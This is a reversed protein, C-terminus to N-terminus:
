RDSEGDLLSSEEDFADKKDDPQCTLVFLKTKGVLEVLLDMEVRVSIENGEEAISADLCNPQSNVKVVVELDDRFCYPDVNEPMIEQVYSLTEKAVATESNGDYSYWVSVDFRGHVEVVDGVLAGEYTHNMVWCGGITTPQHASRIVYTSQSYKNAKGCVASTIIERCETDKSFVVSNGGRESLDNCRPPAGKVSALGTETSGCIHLDGM